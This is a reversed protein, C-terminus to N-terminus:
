KDTLSKSAEGTLRDREAQSWPTRGKTKVVGASKDGKTSFMLDRIENAEPKTPTKIIPEGADDMKPPADGIHIPKKM